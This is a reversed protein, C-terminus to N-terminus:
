KLQTKSFDINRDTHEKIKTEHHCGRPKKTPWLQAAMFLAAYIGGIGWLIMNQTDHGYCMLWIAGMFSSVALIIRM